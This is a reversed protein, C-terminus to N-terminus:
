AGNKTRQIFITTAFKQLEENNFQVGCNEVVYAADKVSELMIERLSSATPTEAEKPISLIALEYKSSGPKGNKVRKLSFESGKILNQETIIQHIDDTAFFAKEQNDGLDLVSYLHYVGVSSEGTYPKDKVLKLRVEQGIELEIKPRNNTGM